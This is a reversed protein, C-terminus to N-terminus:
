KLFRLSSAISRTLAGAKARSRETPAIPSVPVSAPATADLAIGSMAALVAIRFADMALHVRFLLPARRTLLLRM